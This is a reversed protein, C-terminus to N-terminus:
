EDSSENAVDGNSASFTSRLKTRSMTVFKRCRAMTRVIAASAAIETKAEDGLADFQLFLSLDQLIQTVCARLTEQIRRRQREIIEFSDELVADISRSAGCLVSNGLQQPAAYHSEM